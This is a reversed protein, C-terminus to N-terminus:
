TRTSGARRELTPALCRRAQLQFRSPRTSYSIVPKGNELSRFKGQLKWFIEGAKQGALDHVELLKRLAAGGETTEKEIREREYELLFDVALRLLYPTDQETLAFKRQASVAEALLIVYRVLDYAIDEMKFADRIVARIADETEPCLPFLKGEESGGAPGISFLSALEEQPLLDIYAAPVASQSDGEYPAQSVSDLASVFSHIETTSTPQMDRYRSAAKLLHRPKGRSLWWVANVVTEGLDPFLEKAKVPSV